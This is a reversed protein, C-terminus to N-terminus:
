LHRCFSQPLLQFSRGHSGTKILPHMFPHRLSLPSPRVDVFQPRMQDPPISELKALQSEDSMPRVM